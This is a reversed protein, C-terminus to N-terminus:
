TKRQYGDPMISDLMEMSDKEGKTDWITEEGCRAGAILRCAQEVLLRRKQAFREPLLRFRAISVEVHPFRAIGPVLAEVFSEDICPGLFIHINKIKVATEPRLQALFQECRAPPSCSKKAEPYAFFANRGCYMTTIEENFMQCALLLHTAYTPDAWVPKLPGHRDTIQTLGTGAVIIEHGIPYLTSYILHRIEYPLALFPSRQKITKHNEAM